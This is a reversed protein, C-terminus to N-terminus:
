CNGPKNTEEEIIVFRRVPARMNHKPNLKIYGPGPYVGGVLPQMNIYVGDAHFAPGMIRYYTHVGISFSNLDIITVSLDESKQTKVTPNGIQFKTNAISQGRWLKAPLVFEFTKSGAPVCEDGTLKTAVMNVGAKTIAIKEIKPTNKTCTYGVANWHGVFYNQYYYIYPGAQTPPVKVNIQAIPKVFPKKVILIHSEPKTFKTEDILPGTGVAQLIPEPTDPTAINVAFEPKSATPLAPVDARKPTRIYIRKGSHFKNLNDIEFHNKWHGSNPKKANGVVYTLKINKGTQVLAPKVFRFTETGTTVCNDGKTKTCIVNKDFDTCYMLEPTPEKGDCGYGYMEWAGEFYDAKFTKKLPRPPSSSTNTELQTQYSFSILTFLLFAINFTKM